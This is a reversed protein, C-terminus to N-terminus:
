SFPKYLVVVHLLLQGLFRSIKHDEHAFILHASGGCEEVTLSRASLIILAVKNIVQLKVIKTGRQYSIM